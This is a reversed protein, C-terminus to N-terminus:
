SRSARITKARFIAGVCKAARRTFRFVMVTIPTGSFVAAGAYNGQRSLVQSCPTVAREFETFTTDQPDIVPTISSFEIRAAVDCSIRHPVVGCAERRTGGGVGWYLASEKPFGPAFCSGRVVTGRVCGRLEIIVIIAGHSSTTRRSERCVPIGNLAGISVGSNVPRATAARAFSGLM